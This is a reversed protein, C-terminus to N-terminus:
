HHITHSISENSGDPVSSEMPEQEIHQLLDTLSQKIATGTQSEVPSKPVSMRKALQIGIQHNLKIEAAFRQRQEQVEREAAGLAYQAAVRQEKKTHVTNKLGQYKWNRYAWGFTESAFAVWLLPSNIQDSDWNKKLALVFHMLIALLNLLVVVAVKLSDGSQQYEYVGAFLLVVPGLFLLGAGASIFSETSSSKRFGSFVSGFFNSVTNSGALFCAFALLVFLAQATDSAPQYLEVAYVQLLIAAGTALAFLFPHGINPKSQPLDSKISGIEEQTREEHAARKSVLDYQRKYENEAAELEPSVYAKTVAHVTEDVSYGKYGMWIAMDKGTRILKASKQQSSSKKTFPNTFLM